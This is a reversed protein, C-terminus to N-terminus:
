KSSEQGAEKEPVSLDPLSDYFIRVNLDKALNEMYARYNDEEYLSLIYPKVLDYDEQKGRVYVVHYIGKKPYVEATEPDQNFVKPSVLRDDRIGINKYEGYGTKDFPDENFSLYSNLDKGENWSQAISEAEKRTPVWVEQLDLLVRDKPHKDYYARLDEESPTGEKAVRERHARTLAQKRLSSEFDEPSIKLSKLQSQLGEENGFKQVAERKMEEYAGTEDIDLRRSDERVMAEWVLTDLLDRALDEPDEEADKGRGGPILRYLSLIEDFDARTITGEGVQALDRDGPKGCASLVLALCLALIKMGIKKM